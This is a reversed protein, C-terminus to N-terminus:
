IGPLNKLFHSFSATDSPKINVRGDLIIGKPDILIYQPLSYSFFHHGEVIKSSLLFYSLPPQLAEAHVEHGQLDNRGYYEQWANIDKDVSIGLFEIDPNVNDAKMKKWAEMEALCKNLASSWVQILVYKGKLSSLSFPTGNYKEAKIDPVQRGISVSDPNCIEKTSHVRLHQASAQQVPFFCALVLFNLWISYYIRPIM